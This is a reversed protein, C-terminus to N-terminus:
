QALWQLAEQDLFYDRDRLDASIVDGLPADFMFRVALLRLAEPPTRAAFVSESSLKAALARAKWQGLNKCQQIDPWYRSWAVGGEKRILEEVIEMKRNKDVSCYAAFSAHTTDNVVRETVRRLPEQLPLPM